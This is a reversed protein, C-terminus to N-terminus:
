EGVEVEAYATRGEYVRVRYVEPIEGRLVILAYQAIEEVTTAEILSGFKLGKVVDNIVAHDFRDIIHERVADSLRRFDVVMGHTAADSKDIQAEDRRRKAWVRITYTHGHMNRCQGDHFPNHHAAQFEWSKSVITQM